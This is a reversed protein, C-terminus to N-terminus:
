WPRSYRPTISVGVAAGEAAGSLLVNLEVEGGAPIPAFIADSFGMLPWLSKGAEDTITQAYSDVYVYKETDLGFPLSVYQSGVGLHVGTIPGKAWWRPWAERDGPNLIRARSTDATPSIYLLVDGFSGGFFPAGSSSWSFSQSVEAGTWWPAEGAVLDLVYSALGRDAPNKDGPIQPPTNLRLRMERRGIGTEVAFVGTREASLSRHFARDLERWEEDRRRTRRGPLPYDDGVEVALVLSTSGWLTDEYRLEDRGGSETWEQTFMPMGLGQVSVLRVPSLPDLLDWSSGDVGDWIMRMTDPM